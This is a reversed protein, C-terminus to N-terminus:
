LQREEFVETGAGMKRHIDQGFRLAIKRDREGTLVLAAKFAHWPICAWVTHGQEIAGHRREFALEAGYDVGAVM